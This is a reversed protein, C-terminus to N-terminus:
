VNERKPWDEFRNRMEKVKAAPVNHINGFDGECRIVTLMSGLENAMDIYPQMEWVRTFTNAIAVSDGARLACRADKQCEAHCERLRSGDFFYKGSEDVMYDDASIVQNVMGAARM